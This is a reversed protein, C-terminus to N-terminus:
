VRAVGLGAGAQSFWLFLEREGKGRGGSQNEHKEMHRQTPVTLFLSDEGHRAEGDRFLLGGQM